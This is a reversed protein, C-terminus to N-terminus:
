IISYLIKENKKYKKLRGGEIFTDFVSGIGTITNAVKKYTENFLSEIDQKVFNINQPTDLHNAILINLIFTQCNNNYASYEFFKNTGMRNLTNNLLDNITLGNSIVNLREANKISNPQRLSIHINAEKEISLWENNVKVFMQLHYLTDYPTNQLRKKLDDGTLYNVTNMVNTIPHRSLIIEEIPYNGYKNVLNQASPVLNQRGKFYVDSVAQIGKKIQITPNYTLVNNFADSLSISGGVLYDNYYIILEIGDNLKKTRPITYGQKILTEPNIQRFRYFNKTEDIKKFKKKNNILWNICENISWISKKFIISQIKYM